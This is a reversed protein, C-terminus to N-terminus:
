RSSQRPSSPTSPLQPAPAPTSSVVGLHASIEIAGSAEGDSNVRGQTSNEVDSGSVEVGVNTASDPRLRSFFKDVGFKIIGGTLASCASALFGILMREELKPPQTKEDKNELNKFMDSLSHLAFVFLLQSTFTKLREPTNSILTGIKETMEEGIIKKSMNGVYEKTFEQISEGTLSKFGFNLMKLTTALGSFIAVYTGSNINENAAIFGIRSANEGLSLLPVQKEKSLKLNTAIIQLAGRALATYLETMIMPDILSLDSSQSLQTPTPTTTAVPNIKPPAMLADLLFKSNYPLTMALIPGM